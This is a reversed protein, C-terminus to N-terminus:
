AVEHAARGLLARGGAALLAEALRRGGERPDRVDAVLSHRLAGGDVSGIYGVLSMEGEDVVAHAGVPASCGGGVTALFAREAELASRSPADELVALLERLGADDARTELALAGQGVAPVFTSPDFYTTVRDTLGLRSLGAAALVIAHYAGEDLRRLRTDINGRISQVDLDPRLERLQGIRRPSSTGITAGPEMTVLSGARSVLVDRADVRAPVCAICMDEALESPLDKASHVALDIRGTRLAAEIEDVFVGKGDIQAIPRDIIRDGRTVILEQRVQLMPYHAELMRAIMGTQALALASRRTGIIVTTPEPAASQRAHWLPPLPSMVTM